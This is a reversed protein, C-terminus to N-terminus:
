ISSTVIYEVSPRYYIHLMYLIANKEMLGEDRFYDVAFDYQDDIVTVIYLCLFVLISMEVLLFLQWYFGSPKGKGEGEIINIFWTRCTNYLFFVSVGLLQLSNRGSPEHNM